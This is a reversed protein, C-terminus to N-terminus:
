TEMKTLQLGYAKLRECYRCKDLRKREAIICKLIYKSSNDLEVACSRCDPTHVWKIVNDM